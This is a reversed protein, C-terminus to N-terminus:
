LQLTQYLKITKHRVEECQQLANIHREQALKWTEMVEEDERMKALYSAFGLKKTTEGRHHIFHDDLQELETNRAVFHATLAKCYNKYAKIYSEMRHFYQDASSQDLKAPLPPATPMEPYKLKQATNPKTPHSSASQSPFPLTDKLEDLGIGGNQPAQFPEVNAIGSLGNLGLVPPRASTASSPATASGNPVTGIGAATNIKPSAPATRIGGKMPKPIPPTSSDIDMADGDGNAAEQAFAQYKPRSTDPKDQTRPAGNQPVSPKRAAKPRKTAEPARRPSTEKSDTYVWNPDKFTDKWAQQSFKAAQAGASPPPPFKVNPPPGPPPPPIPYSQAQSLPQTFPSVPPPVQPQNLFPNRESATRQSPRGRTPSTRGRSNSTKQMNPAFYDASGEFKGHWDSPSFKINISEESRSKFSNPLNGTAHKSQQSQQPTKFQEQSWSPAPPPHTTKQPLPPGRHKNGVHFVEPESEEDSSDPYMQPFQKTSKGSYSSRQQRRGSDSHAGSSDQSSSRRHTPSNRVSASRGLGEFMSTREGGTNSYYPTRVRNAESYPVDTTDTDRTPYSPRPSPTATPPTPAPRAYNRYSSRAQGEDAGPTAPNFGQRSSPARTSQTRGFPTGNPNNQANHPNGQPSGQAGPSYQRPEEARPQKMKQWATFVNARAEADKARTDPRQATPPPRFNKSTFRDAGSNFTNHHQPPPPRQPQQAPKPPPPRYYSGSPTTTTYANRPPPPPRTRPTNPTNTPINLNRYKRREADYKARQASDCLVEHAAQIEQFKVVFEVERGPNRDPHYQLALTRFAKRIENEGANASIKLDAYYNRTPDAKVM